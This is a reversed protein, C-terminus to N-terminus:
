SLLIFFEFQILPCFISDQGLTIICLLFHKVTLIVQALVITLLKKLPGIITHIKLKELDEFFFNNNPM